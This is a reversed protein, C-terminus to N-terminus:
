VALPHGVGAALRTHQLATPLDTAVSASQSWLLDTTRTDVLHEQLTWEHADRVLSGKLVLDGSPSTADVGSLPAVLRLSGVQSLGQTLQGIVNAVMAAAVPDSKDIDLPTIALVHSAAVSMLSEPAGASVGNMRQAPKAVEIAADDASASVKVELVYGRGSIQRVMARRKDGLAARIERICQFLSDQGVHVNPWVATM